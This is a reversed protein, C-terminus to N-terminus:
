IDVFTTYSGLPDSNITRAGRASMKSDKAAEYWSARVNHPLCAGLRHFERVTLIGKDLVRFNAVVQQRGIVWDTPELRADEVGDTVSMLGPLAKAIIEDGEGCDDIGLENERVLMALAPNTDAM